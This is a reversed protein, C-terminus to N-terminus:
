ADAWSRRYVRGSCRNHTDGCDPDRAVDALVRWLDHDVDEAPQTVLLKQSM